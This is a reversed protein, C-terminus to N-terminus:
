SEESGAPRRRLGFAFVLLLVLLTLATGPPGMIPVPAACAPDGVCAPDACCEPDACDILGDSDNDVTDSCGGPADNENMYTQALLAWRFPGYSLGV